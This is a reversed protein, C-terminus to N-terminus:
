AAPSWRKKIKRAQEWASDCWAAAHGSATPRRICLTEAPRHVAGWSFKYAEVGRLLDLRRHGKAIAEQLMAIMSLVGASVAEGAASLGAQYAFQQAGNDLVYEAAVPEGDISLVRLELSGFLALEEIALQHFALFEPSEFAGQEGLGERRDNHLQVLLGFAAQCEKPKRFTAVTARGTAFFQKELRRIKKRRNKSLSALYVEWSEPLEVFCSGPADRRSIPCGHEQLRDILSGVVADDNNVSDLVLQSWQNAPADTMWEAMADVVQDQADTRCLITAHDTCARGDGMWRVQCIGRKLETYWLALGILQGKERVAVVSLERGQGYADWWALIWEPSQMVSHRPLRNWDTRLAALESRSTLLDVQM